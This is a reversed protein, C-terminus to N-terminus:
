GDAGNHGHWFAATSTIFSLFSRVREQVGITLM